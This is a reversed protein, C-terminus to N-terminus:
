RRVSALFAVVGISALSMLMLVCLASVNNDVGYHMRDFILKAFSEWGPTWVCTSAAVEGLCLAAVALAAVVAGRWTLPVVVGWGQSWMGAGALQAEEMAARPIMRVIPWLFVVAIPLARISQVWM